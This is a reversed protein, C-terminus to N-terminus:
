RNLAGSKYEFDRRSYIYIHGLSSPTSLLPYQTLHGKGSENFEEIASLEGYRPSGHFSWVDDFYFLTGSHLLPFLWNLIEITSSYYDVDICVISPSYVSLEDRLSPVLSEDFRGKVFRVNRKPLGVKKSVKDVRDWIRDLGVKFMGEEWGVYDDKLSSKPPLGEFTDFGFIRYDRPDDHFHSCYQKLAYMYRTLTGGQGVGFEYYNGSPSVGLKALHAQHILAFYFFSGLRDVELLRKIAQLLVGPHLLSKLPSAMYSSITEEPDM